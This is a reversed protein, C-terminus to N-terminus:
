VAGIEFTFRIVTNVGPSSFFLTTAHPVRARGSKGTNLSHLEDAPVTQHEADIAQGDTGLDAYAGAAGIWRGSIRGMWAPFTIETAINAAGLTVFRVRTGPELALIQAPTAM